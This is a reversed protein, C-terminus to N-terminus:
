YNSEKNITKIVPHDEKIVSLKEVTDLWLIVVKPLAEKIIKKKKTMTLSQLLYKIANTILENDFAEDDETKSPITKQRQQYYRDYYLGLEFYSNDDEGGMEIFTLHQDILETPSKRNLLDCWQTYKRIIASFLKLNDDTKELELRKGTIKDSYDKIINRSGM